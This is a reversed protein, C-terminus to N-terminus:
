FKGLSHLLYVSEQSGDGSIRISIGPSPILFRNTASWSSVQGRQPTSIVGSNEGNAELLKLRLTAEEPVTLVTRLLSGGSRQSYFLEAQHLLCYIGRFSPM